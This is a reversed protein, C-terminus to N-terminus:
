FNKPSIISYNNNHNHNCIFWENKDIDYYESPLKDYKDSIGGLVM